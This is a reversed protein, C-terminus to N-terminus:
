FRGADYTGWEDRLAGCIESMTGDAELAVRLAPLLNTSGRALERVDVLRGSSPKPTAGPM